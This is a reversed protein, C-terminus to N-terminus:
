ELFNVISPKGAGWGGSQYCLLNFCLAPSHITKTSTTILTSPPPPHLDNPDASNFAQSTPTFSNLALWRRGTFSAASNGKTDGMTHKLICVSVDRCVGTSLGRSVYVCACCRPFCTPALVPATGIPNKKRRRCKQTCTFYTGARRRFNM